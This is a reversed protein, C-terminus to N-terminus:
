ALMEPTVMTRGTEGHQDHYTICMARREAHWGGRAAYADRAALTPHQIIAMGNQENEYKFHRHGSHVYRKTTQGWMEPFQAAFHGPLADPKRIHGHHFALMTNGHRYAYYPLESDNVTLRPENEYMSRFMLRLWISSAPDHNGEAMIVQVTKHKALAMDVIERLSRITADVIQSFRGDVDLVNKSAPTLPELGDTHLFDGLQCVVATEANPSAAIMHSFAGILTKQAIKIDWDAGGERHWALMGMHYDTITYLNCLAAMSTAPAKVPTARPIRAAMAAAADEFMQRKAEAAADTKIWQVLTNGGADVLTSTGKVRYGEPAPRVPDVPRRWKEWDVKRGAGREAAALFGNASGRSSGAEECAQRLAGVQGPPPTVGQPYAGAELKAEIAQLRKESEAKGTGPNAM